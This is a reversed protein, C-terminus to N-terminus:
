VTTYRFTRQNIIELQMRLNANHREFEDLSVFYLAPAIQGLIMIRKEEKVQKSSENWLANPRLNFRRAGLHILSL